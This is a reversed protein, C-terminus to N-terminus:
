VFNEQNEKKKNQCKPFDRLSVELCRTHIIVAIGKFNRKRNLKKKKRVENSTKM